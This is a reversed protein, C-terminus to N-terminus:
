DQNFKNPAADPHLQDGAWRLPNSQIYARIRAYAAENRIIHEYYNRQWISHFGLEKGARATVAAKFGAVFSGLSRGERRLPQNEPQPALSAGEPQPAHCAGEKIPRIGDAGVPNPFDTASEPTPQVGESVEILRVIGHIHNPMVVFEETNLEIERRIQVSRYWEQQVIEGLPSLQIQGNCITGFLNERRWACLTLFYAGPQIYDYEPLRISRRHHKRPDYKM